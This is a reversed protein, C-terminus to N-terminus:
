ISENLTVILEPKPVVALVATRHGKPLEKKMEKLYEPIQSQDESAIQWMALKGNLNTYIKIM